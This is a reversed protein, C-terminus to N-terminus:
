RGLRFPYFRGQKMCFGAFPRSSHPIAIRGGVPVFVPMVTTGDGSLFVSLNLVCLDEGSLGECHGFNDGLNYRHNKMDKNYEKEIQRCVGGSDAEQYSSQKMKAKEGNVKFVREIAQNLGNNLAVPNQSRKRRKLEVKCEDSVEASELLWQYQTAPTKEYGKWYRGDGQKVKDVLKFSPYWYNVLPCLYPYVEALAEQDAQTDFRFYGVTKHVADYNKQEARVLHGCVTTTRGTPRSRTAKIHRALYWAM